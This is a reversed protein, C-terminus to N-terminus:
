NVELNIELNPHENHRLLWCEWRLDKMEDISLYGDFTEIIYDEIFSDYQITSATWMLAPVDDIVKEMIYQEITDTLFSTSPTFTIAQAQM